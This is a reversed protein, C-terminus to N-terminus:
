GAAIDAFLGECTRVAVRAASALPRPSLPSEARERWKGLEELM